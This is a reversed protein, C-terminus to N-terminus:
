LHEIGVPELEIVGDLLLELLEDPALASSPPTPLARMPRATSAAVGDLGVHADRASPSCSRHRAAARRRSPRWPEAAGVPDGDERRGAGRDLCGSDLGSPTLM